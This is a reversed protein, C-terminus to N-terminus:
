ARDYRVFRYEIGTRSTHWGSAPDASTVTWAADIAPAFSDGDYHGNVETVELRDAAAIAERYVQSGGIVWTTPELVTPGAQGALALAEDLSNAVEAGDASWDPDRTVVINRRAPLPRFRPNLSDWTRRGMVVPNGVTVSKFHALDEPLHWPIGGDVGIVGGDAQAWILGIPAPRDTM